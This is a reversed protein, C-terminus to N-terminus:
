PNLKVIECKLTNHSISQEDLSIKEKKIWEELDKVVMGYKKDDATFMSSWPRRKVIELFEGTTFTKEWPITIEDMHKLTKKKKMYTIVQPHGLQWRIGVQSSEPSPLNYKQRLEIYTGWFKELLTKNKSKIRGLAINYMDSEESILLLLGSPKIIRVLENVAKKWQPIAHLVSSILAADFHHTQFPLKLLDGPLYKYNRLKENRIKEGLVSLMEKSNDIGTIRLTSQQRALPLTIRGTGCGADLLEKGDFSSTIAQIEAYLSLLIHPDLPRGFDYSEAVTQINWRTSKTM